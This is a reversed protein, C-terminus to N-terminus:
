RSAVRSRANDVVQEVAAFARAIGEKQTATVDSGDRKALLEALLHKMVLHVEAAQDARRFSQPLGRPAPKEKTPLPVEIPVAGVIRVFEASNISPM